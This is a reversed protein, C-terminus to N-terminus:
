CKNTRCSALPRWPIVTQRSPSHSHASSFLSHSHASSSSSSSLSLESSWLRGQGEQPAHITPLSAWSSQSFCKVAEWQLEAGVNWVRLGSGLRQPSFRM